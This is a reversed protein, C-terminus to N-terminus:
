SSKLVHAPNIVHPIYEYNPAESPDVAGLNTFFEKVASTLNMTGNKLNDGYQLWFEIGAIDSAIDEYSWGSPNGDWSQYRESNYAYIEVVKQGNKRTYDALRFFHHMDIWGAKETYMYRDINKSADVDVLNGEGDRTFKRDAAFYNSLAQLKPGITANVVDNANFAKWMEGMIQNLNGLQGWRPEQGDPDIFYIPNNFSFSYPGWSPMKGALPDVSLWRGSRSDYIRAGFDLHTGMGAWENDKLMGNFGFRYRDGGDDCVRVLVEENVWSGGYYRINSIGFHLNGQIGVSVNTFSDAINLYVADEPKEYHKQYFVRMEGAEDVGQL